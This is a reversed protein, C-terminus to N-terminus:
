RGQGHDLGDWTLDLREGYLLPGADRYVLCFFLSSGGTSGDWRRVVTEGTLTLDTEERAGTWPWALVSVVLLAALATRAAPLASPGGPPDPLLRSLPIACAYFMLTLVAYPATRWGLHLPALLVSGAFVLLCCAATPASLALLLARRRGTSERLARPLARLLPPACLLPPLSFLAAFWHPARLIAGRLGAGDLPLWIAASPLLLLAALLGGFLLGSLAGSPFFKKRM